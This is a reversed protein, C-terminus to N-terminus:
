RILSRSRLWLECFDTWTAVPGQGKALAFGHGGQQFLHLEATSGSELVEQYWRIASEPPTVTDDSASAIFSPPLTQINRAAQLDLGMLGPYLLVLFDPKCSQRAVRDSAMPNGSDANLTLNMVLHAGASFGMAGVKTPDVGWEEARDRLHRLARQIDELAETRELRYKLVFAAIGVTNLWDAIQHGEKEIALHRYGGGPAILIAAGSSFERPPLHVTLGPQHVNRIRENVIEERDERGTTGPADGEWLPIESQGFLSPMALFVLCILLGLNVWRM